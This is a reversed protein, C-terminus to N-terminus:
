YQLSFLGSFANKEIDEKGFIKLNKLMQFSYSELKKIQNNQGWLDSIKVLFQGNSSNNIGDYIKNEIRIILNTVNEYIVIENFNLIKPNSFKELCNM